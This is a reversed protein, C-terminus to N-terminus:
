RLILNVYFLNLLYLLSYNYKKVAFNFKCLIFKASILFYNYKKVAFNFKCLIFKASILFHNYKKVAFYILFCFLIVSASFLIVNTYFLNCM